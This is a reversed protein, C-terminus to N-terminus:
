ASSSGILCWDAPPAAAMVLSRLGALSGALNAVADRGSSQQLKNQALKIRDFEFGPSLEQSNCSTM